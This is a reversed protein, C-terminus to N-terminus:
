HVTALCSQNVSQKARALKANASPPLGKKKTNFFQECLLSDALLSWRRDSVYLTDTFVCKFLLRAYMLVFRMLVCARLCMWVCLRVDACLCVHVSVCVCTRGSLWRCVYRFVCVSMCTCVCLCAVFM